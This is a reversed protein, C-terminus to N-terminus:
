NDQFEPKLLSMAVLDHHTGNKFIAQRHVGDIKFGVKQYLRVATENNKLVTLYIRHLNCQNFGHELMMKTATTGIGKGWYNKEGIWISFEASANIPHIDTLNVNGIYENNNTHIIALRIAKDRNQLYHQYWNKDIDQAIYRFNNGLQDILIKDNRWMNLRSIDSPELERLIIQKM